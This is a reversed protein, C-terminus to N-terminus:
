QGNGHAGHKDGAGGGDGTFVLLHGTDDFLLDGGNHNGEPQPIELM